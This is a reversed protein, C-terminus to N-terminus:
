LRAHQIHRNYMYVNTSSIVSLYAEVCVCVCVCVHACTLETWSHMDAHVINYMCIIHACMYVIALVHSVAGYCTYADHM